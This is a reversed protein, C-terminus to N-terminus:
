QFAAARRSRARITRALEEGYPLAGCLLVAALVTALYWGPLAPHKPILSWDAGALGPPGLGFLSLFEKRHLVVVVATAAFPAMELVGHVHQEAPSVVRTANAYRVDWVATAQHLVLGALMLLLVAANVQLFLVALLPVGIEAFLLLHLLSERPGSTVEIRSLRHCLWDALGAALWAPVIAYMLLFVLVADTTM